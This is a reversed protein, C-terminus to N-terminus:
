PGEVDNRRLRRSADELLAPNGVTKFPRLRKKPVYRQVLVISKPMGPEMGEVYIADLRGDAGHTLFGDFSLVTLVGEGVLENARATAAELCDEILLHDPDGVVFREISPEGGRAASMVFPILPEDERVSDIGHDLSAFLLGNFQRAGEGDGV